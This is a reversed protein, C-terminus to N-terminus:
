GVPLTTSWGGRRRRLGTGTTRGWEPALLPPAPPEGSGRGTSRSRPGVGVARTPTARRGVELAALPIVADRRSRDRACGGRGRREPRPATRRGRGQDHLRARARRAPRPHGDEGGHATRAVRRRVRLGPGRRRADDAPTASERAAGGRARRRSSRTRSSAKPSDPRATDLRPSDAGCDCQRCRITRRRGYSPLMSNKRVLM